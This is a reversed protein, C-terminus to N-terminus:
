GNVTESPDLETEEVPRDSRRIVFATGLMWFVLLWPQLETLVFFFSALGPSLPGIVEPPPLLGLVAGGLAFNALLGSFAGSRRIAMGFGLLLPVSGPVLLTVTVAWLIALGAVMEPSFGERHVLNVMSLQLLAVLLLLIAYVASGVLGVIAWCGSEEGSSGSLRRWMGTSFVVVCIAALVFLYATAAQFTSSDLYYGALENAPADFPSPPGGAVNGFRAAINALLVALLGAIPVSKNFSIQRSM